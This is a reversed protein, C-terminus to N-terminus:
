GKVSACVCATAVLVRGPALVATVRVEAVSCGRQGKVECRRAGHHEKRQDQLFIFTTLDNFLNFLM